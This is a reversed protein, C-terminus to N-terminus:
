DHMFIAANIFRAGMADWCGSLINFFHYLDNNDKATLKPQRSCTSVVEALGTLWILSNYIYLLIILQLM